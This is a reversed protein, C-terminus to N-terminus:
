PVKPKNHIHIQIRRLLITAQSNSQERVRDETEQRERKISQKKQKKFSSSIESFLNRVRETEGNAMSM